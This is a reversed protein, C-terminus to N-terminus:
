DLHSKLEVVQRELWASGDPWNELLSVLDPREERISDLLWEPTLWRYPGLKRIMDEKTGLYPEFMTWLSHNTIVWQSLRKVGVKEKSLIELLSGKIIGPMAQSIVGRALPNRYKELIASFDKM